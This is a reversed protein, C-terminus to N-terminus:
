GRAVLRRLAARDPKGSVLLPTAGVLLLQRPALPAVARDTVYSRLARLTPPNRPDRAVVVAVVRQGWQDDPAGLVTVEAVAPHAALLDEVERPAVNVGGTVIVDDARGLVTLTGDPALRGLDGTRFRGDAFAAATLQRRERYGRGIVSGGLCIRGDDLRVDVTSLPHGDYVCGGCTETMGYTTVIRVGSEEAAARLRPPTAAAGVLVADFAALAALPEGGHELLRRLQTPVLSVYRREGTCRAAAAAFRGATFPAALDQVTPARAALVSRLLVQLGAVHWPPLALLWSGPGGLREDTGAASARLASAPLLSGKPEATSGSTAVVFATPDADDDEDAALPTGASFVDAYRHATDPDDAPVPLLTPGEGALARRLAPLSDLVAEGAPLAITELSRM